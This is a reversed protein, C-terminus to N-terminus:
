ASRKKAAKDKAGRAPRVVKGRRPPAAAEVQAPHVLLVPGAEVPEVPTLGLRDVAEMVAEIDVQDAEAGAALEIALAALRNLTRPLGGGTEVLLAISEDTFVRTPEAGAARIEHRLYDAAEASNLPDIAARSVVHSAAPGALRERLGPQAVLLTFLAPGNQTEINSLLRLEELADDGLHQAEDLVLVTPPRASTGAALLLDTIALRLEQESRDLYPRALDFLIAQHLELPQQARANPVVIRTIEPALSELWKRAVLSKGAGIPGDVLVVAERRAYGAAIAALAAEHSSSPFYSSPDTTARFPQRAFGFQSWDV